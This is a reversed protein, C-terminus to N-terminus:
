PRVCTRWAVGALLGASLPPAWIAVGAPLAGYLGLQRLWLALLCVLGGTCVCLVIRPLLPRGQGTLLFAGALAQLALVTLPFAWWEHWYVRLRASPEGRMALLTRLPVPRWDEVPLLELQVGRWTGGEAVRFVGHRERRWTVVDHARLQGGLEDLREAFSVSTVTNGEREVRLAGVVANEAPERQGYWCLVDPDTPLFGGREGKAGQVTFYARAADPIFLERNLALIAMLIVSVAAFPLFLRGPSVGASQLAMWENRAGLVAMTIVSAVFALLPAVLHLFLPLLRAYLLVADVASVDRAQLTEFRLSADAVVALMAAGFVLAAFLGGWTRWAYRDSVTGIM